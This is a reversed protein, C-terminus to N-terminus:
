VGGNWGWIVGSFSSVRLGGNKGLCFTKSTPIVARNGSLFRLCMLSSFPCMVCFNISTSLLPESFYGKRSTGFLVNVSAQFSM